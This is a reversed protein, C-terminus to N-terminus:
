FCSVAAFARSLGGGMGKWGRSTQLISGLACGFKRGHDEDRESPDRSQGSRSCPKWPRM